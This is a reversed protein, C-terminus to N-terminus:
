FINKKLYEIPINLVACDGGRGNPNNGFSCGTKYVSNLTIEYTFIDDPFDAFTFVAYGKNIKGNIIDCLLKNIKVLDIITTNYADKNCQRNKIESKIIENTSSNKLSIDYKYYRGTKFYEYEEGYLKLTKIIVIKEKPLSVRYKNEIDQKIEEATMQKKTM